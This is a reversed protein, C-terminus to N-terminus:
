ATGRKKLEREQEELVHLKKFAAICALLTPRHAEAKVRAPLANSVSDKLKMVLSHMNNM